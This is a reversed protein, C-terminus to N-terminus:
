VKTFTKTHFHEECELEENSLKSASNQINELEWFKELQKHLSNTNLFCKTNNNSFLCALNQLPGAVIWGFKTNQLIPKSPGLQIQGDLLVRYFVETGLLVDVKSSVNFCDDALNLNDPINLFSHDFSSQPLQTTINDIVLFPVSAKFKGSISCIQTETQYLAYCLTESIGSVPFNVQKGLIGLPQFLDATCFNSQSASDLLARCKVFEKNKDLLYVTATALLIQCKNQGKSNSSLSVTTTSTSITDSSVNEDSSTITVLSSANNEQPIKSFDISQSNDHLITNHKQKCVHCSGHNCNEAIHGSHLCNTCVGAKQLEVFRKNINFSLLKRCKYTPHNDQKCFSCKTNKWIKGRQSDMVVYSHLKEGPKHANFLM